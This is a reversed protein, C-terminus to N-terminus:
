AGRRRRPLFASFNDAAQGYAAQGYAAQGYAAQGYAVQGYAAEMAVEQTEFVEDATSIRVQIEYVHSAGLQLALPAANAGRKSAPRSGYPAAEFGVDFRGSLGETQAGRREGLM